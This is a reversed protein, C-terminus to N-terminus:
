DVQTKHGVGLLAVADGESDVGQISPEQEVLLALPLTLPLIRESTRRALGRTLEQEDPGNSSPDSTVSSGRRSEVHNVVHASSVM